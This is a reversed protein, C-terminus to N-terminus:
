TTLYKDDDLSAYFSKRVQLIFNKITYNNYLISAIIKAGQDSIHNSQLCSTKFFPLATSNDFIQFSNENVSLDISTLFYKNREITRGFIRATEEDM